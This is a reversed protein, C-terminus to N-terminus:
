PLKYRAPAREGCAILLSYAGPRRSDKRAKRASCTDHVRPRFTMLRTRHRPNAATVGGAFPGGGETSEVGTVTIPDVLYSLM